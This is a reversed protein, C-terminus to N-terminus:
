PLLPLAQAQCPAAVRDIPKQDGTISQDWFPDVGGLGQSRM